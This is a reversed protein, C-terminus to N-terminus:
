KEFKIEIESVKFVAGDEAQKQVTDGVLEFNYKKGEFRQFMMLVNIANLINKGRAKVVINKDESSILYNLYLHPKKSGVLLDM